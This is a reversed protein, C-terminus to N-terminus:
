DTVITNVVDLSIKSSYCIILAIIQKARNEGFSSILFDKLKYDDIIQLLPLLEGYSLIDQPTKQRVKVTKGGILKGLYKSHQKVKKSGTDYYPTIEYQYEIGNISKTRIFTKM